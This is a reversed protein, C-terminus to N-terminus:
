IYIAPTHTHTHTHTTNLVNQEPRLTANSVTQAIQRAKAKGNWTFSYREKETEISDGLLQKLVELDIKGETFIEPFIQKLKEINDQTLDMSTGSLKEM